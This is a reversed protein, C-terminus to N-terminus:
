WKYQFGKPPAGMWELLQETEDVGFVIRDTTFTPCFGVSEFKQQVLDIDEVMNKLTIQARNRCDNRKQLGGDSVYWYKVVTDTLDLGSPIKKQGSSYWDRLESFYPHARTWMRYQTSFEYEDDEEIFSSDVAADRIEEGSRYQNVGTSMEALETDLWELFEKNKMSLTFYHSNGSEGISGDGLLLGQVM